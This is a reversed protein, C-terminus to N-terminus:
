PMESAPLLELSIDEFIPLYFSFYTDTGEYCWGAYVEKDYYPSRDPSLLDGDRVTITTINGDSQRFTVTHTTGDSLDSFLGADLNWVDCLHDLRKSLFFRAFRANNFPVKYKCWETGWLIYDM